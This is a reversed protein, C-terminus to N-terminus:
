GTKNKETPVSGFSSSKRIIRVWTNEKVQGTSKDVADNLPQHTYIIRNPIYAIKKQALPIHSKNNVCNQIYLNRFTVAPSLKLGSSRVWKCVVKKPAKATALM